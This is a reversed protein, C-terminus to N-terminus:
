GETEKSRGMNDGWVKSKENHEMDKWGMGDEVMTSLTGVFRVVRRAVAGSGIGCTLEVGRGEDDVTVSFTFEGSICVVGM